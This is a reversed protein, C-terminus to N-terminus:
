QNEQVIHTHNVSGLVFAGFVTLVISLAFLISYLRDHNKPKRMYTVGQMDREGKSSGDLYSTM